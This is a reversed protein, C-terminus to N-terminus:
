QKQKRGKKRHFIRTRLLQPPNFSYILPCKEQSQKDAKRISKKEKQKNITTTTIRNRLEEIESALCTSEFYFFHPPRPHPVTLNNQLIYAGNKSDSYPLYRSYPEELEAPNTRRPPSLHVKGVIPPNEKKRKNRGIRNSTELGLNAYSFCLSAMQPKNQM